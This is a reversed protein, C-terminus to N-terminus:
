KSTHFRRGLTLPEDQEDKGENERGVTPILKPASASGCSIHCTCDQLVIFVPHHFDHHCGARGGYNLLPLPPKVGRAWLGWCHWGSWVDNYLWSEPKRPIIVHLWQEKLRKNSFIVRSQKVFICRSYLSKFSLIGLHYCYKLFYLKGIHSCTVGESKMQIIKWVEGRRKQGYVTWTALPPKHPLWPFWSAENHQGGVRCVPVCWVSKGVLWLKSM